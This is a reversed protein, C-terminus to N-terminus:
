AADKDSFFHEWDLKDIKDALRDKIEGIILSHIDDDKLALAMLEEEENRSFGNWYASPQEGKSQCNYVYREAIENIVDNFTRM